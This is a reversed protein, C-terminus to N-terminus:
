LFRAGRMDVASAHADRADVGRLSGVPCGAEGCDPLACFSSVPARPTRPTREAVLLWSATSPAREERGTGDAAAGAARRLEVLVDLEADAAEDV